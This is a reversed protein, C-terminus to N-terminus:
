APGLGEARPSWLPFWPAPAPEGVRQATGAPFRQLALPPVTGEKQPLRGAKWVSAM